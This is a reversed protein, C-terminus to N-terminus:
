AWRVMYQDIGIEDVERDLVFQVNELRHHITQKSFCNWADSVADHSLELFHTMPISKCQLCDLVWSELPKCAIMFSRIRIVAQDVPDFLM